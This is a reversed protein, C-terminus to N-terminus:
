FKRSINIGFKSHPSDPALGRPQRNYLLELLTKGKEVGLKASFLDPNWKYGGLESKVLSQLFDSEFILKDINTHANEKYFVM